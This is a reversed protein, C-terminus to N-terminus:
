VGYQARYAAMRDRQEALEPHAGAYEMVDKLGVIAVV